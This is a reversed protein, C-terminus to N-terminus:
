DSKKQGKKVKRRNASRVILLIILVLLAPPLLALLVTVLIALLIPVSGFINVFLDRLYAGTSSANEQFKKGLEQWVTLKKENVTVKEVEKVTVNVTSYSVKSSLVRLRGEISEIEGRVESLRNQLEICDSVTVAKELMANLATQEARLATLRGELDAYELSVDTSNESYNLLNASSKLCEVFEELRESPVRFVYKGSRLSRYDEVYITSNEIYGQVDFLNKLFNETFKEFEATELSMNVTKILKQTGDTVGDLVSGNQIDSLNENKDEAEGHEPLAPMVNPPDEPLVDHKGSSCSCLLMVAALTLAVFFLTKKM